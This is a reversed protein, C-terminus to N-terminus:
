GGPSILKIDINKSRPASSPHQAIAISGENDGFIDVRIGNLETQLFVLVVKTILVGKSVNCLTVYEPVCPATVM